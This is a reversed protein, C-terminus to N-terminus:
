PNHITILVTNIDLGWKSLCDQTFKYEAGGGVLNGM